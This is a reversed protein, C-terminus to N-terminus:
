EAPELVPASRRRAAPVALRLRRDSLSILGGLAILLPGIFILKAFPNHYARLLWGAPRGDAGTRREGLVLYLDGPGSGCLAVESTTQRSAPYLRREPYATCVEGGKRSARVQAREALYNPGETGSVRELLLEYGGVRLEGGPALVGVAEQKGATELCAGLVFVGLGLHALTTGWVGTPLGATRRGVEAWPARFLRVREAAEVLTGAVLWVGLAAGVAALTRGPAVAVAAWLGAGLALAAAFWLRQLAGLADGRKWALLPGAPLILM